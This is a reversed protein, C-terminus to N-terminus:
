LGKPEILIWDRKSRGGHYHYRRSLHMLFKMDVVETETISAQMTGDGPRHLVLASVLVTKPYLVFMKKWSASPCNFGQLHDRRIKICPQHSRLSWQDRNFNYLGIQEGYKLLFPNWRLENAGSQEEGQIM